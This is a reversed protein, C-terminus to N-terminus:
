EMVHLARIESNHIKHMIEFAHPELWTDRLHSLNQKNLEIVIKACIDDVIDAIDQPTAEASLIYELPEKMESLEPLDRMARFMWKYYPAFSHNLLFILQVANQVFEALVIRAAGPEGHRICRMFNYQGSQAMMIVRAAIKKLRVDEPMGSHIQVRISTLLGPGDRFIAGNLTEAFAYDPIHLWEQWSQPARPIGIRARLFHEVTCVGREAMGLKSGSSPASEAEAPHCDQLLKRYARALRYGFREDDEETIWLIFGPCFDHDRSIDDDYGFCESGRGALGAAIRPLENPFDRELMPLGAQEFLLKAAELGKM